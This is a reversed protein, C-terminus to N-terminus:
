KGTHSTNLIESFSEKQATDLSSADLSALLSIQDTSIGLLYEKGRVEILCLSKKPMLPRIELIKIASNTRPHLISFRKKVVAYLVLMIGVVALLGWLLRFYAAVEDTPASTAAAAHGACGLCLLVALQLFFRPM